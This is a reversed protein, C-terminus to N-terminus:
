RCGVTSSSSNSEYYGYVNTNNGGSCTNGYYYNTYSPGSSFLTYTNGCAIAATTYSSCYYHPDCANSMGCCYPSCPNSCYSYAYYMLTPGGVCYTRSPMSGPATTQNTMNNTYNSDCNYDFSGDGRNTTFYSTQGPFANAANAGSDYCDIGAIQTSARCTATGSSPAYRDGDNDVYCIGSGCESGASCATGNAKLTTFSSNLNNNTVGNTTGGTNNATACYFYTTNPSFIAGSAKSDNVSGTFGSNTGAVTSPLNSCPTGSNYTPSPGYRYTITTASGNGNVSATFNVSNTTVTNAGQATISPSTACASTSGTVINSDASAGSANNARVSYAYTRGCTITTNHVYASTVNTIQTSPTCVGNATRDCWFLDYSSQTPGAGASWTITLSTLTASGVSSIVPPCPAATTDDCDTAGGGLVSGADMMKYAGPTPSSTFSLVTGYQTPGYANTAMVCFYYTTNATLSSLTAQTTAGSLNSTGTLGTPGALTNPQLDCSVGAQTGWLYSINTSGGNPNVTSNLIASTTTLSSAASTTVSPPGFTTFTDASTYGYGVSNHAYATYSYATNATLGTIGQTFVGTTTGGEPTCTVGTGGQQPNANTATVSYCIGRADVSATGGSTINGGLTATTAGTVSKTPSAVTPAAASCVSIKYVEIESPTYTNTNTGNLYTSPAGQSAPSAYTYINTYTGSNLTASPFAIDHGGGFTPGHNTNNYSQYDAYGNQVLKYGDSLSFLFGGAGAKYGSASDWSQPNYAGFIKNNGSNKVLVITAGQSNVPTHFNSSSWGNTTARYLLTGQFKSSGMYTAINTKDGASALTSSPLLDCGAGATAATTFSLVSGYSTGQTSTGSFCYYYTTNATLGTLKYSRPYIPSTYGSGGTDTPSTNPLSSCAVNSTGYRFVTSFSGAGYGAVGGALVATTDDITHASYTTVTPAPLASTTVNSTTGSYTYTGATTDHAYVCFYYLTSASASVYTNYSSSQGAGITSYDGTTNPLSACATGSYGAGVGYRAGYWITNATQNNIAAQAYFYDYSFGGVSSAGVTVGPPAIAFSMLSNLTSSAFTWQKTGTAGTTAIVQSASHIRSTTNSQIGTMGSPYSTLTPSADNHMAVTVLTSNAVLTTVSPGSPTASTATTAAYVSQIPNSTDAGTWATVVIYAGTPGSWTYSPASAGRVIYWVGTYRPTSYSILQSGVQTWGAPGTLATSTGTGKVYAVLVDGQTTGTPETGTLSTVESVSRLTPAALAKSYFGSVVLFAGIIVLYKVFQLKMNNV